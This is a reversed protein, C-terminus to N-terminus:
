KKLNSFESPDLDPSFLPHQLLEFNLEMIKFGTYDKNFLLKKKKLHLGETEIEKSITQLLM